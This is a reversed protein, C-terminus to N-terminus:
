SALLSIFFPVEPCHIHIWQINFCVNQFTLQMHLYLATSMVPSGYCNCCFLLLLSRHALKNFRVALDLTGDCHGNLFGDFIVALISWDDAVVVSVM